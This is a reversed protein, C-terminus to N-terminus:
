CGTGSSGVVPGVGFRRSCTLSGQARLSSSGGEGEVGAPGPDAGGM